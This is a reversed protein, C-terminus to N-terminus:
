RRECLMYYPKGNPRSSIGVKGGPIAAAYFENWRGGRITIRMNGAAGGYCQYNGDPAKGGGSANAGANASRGPAQKSGGSGARAPTLMWQQFYDRTGDSFKVWCSNGSAKDVVGTRGDRATVTGGLKCNGTGQPSLQAAAPGAPLITAGAFLVIAALGLRDLKTM